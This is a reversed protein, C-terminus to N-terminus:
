ANHSVDENWRLFFLADIKTGSVMRFVHLACLCFPGFGMMNNNNNNNDFLLHEFTTKCEPLNFNHSDYLLIAGGNVVFHWLWTYATRWSSLMRYFLSPTEVFVHNKGYNITLQLVPFIVPKRKEWWFLWSVMWKGPFVYIWKEEASYGFIQMFIFMFNSSHHLGISFFDFYEKSNIYEKSHVRGSHMPM